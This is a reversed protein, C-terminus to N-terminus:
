AREVEPFSIIGAYKIVIACRHCAKVCTRMLLIILYCDSM